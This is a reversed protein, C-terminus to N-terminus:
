HTADEGVVRQLFDPQLLLDRDVYRCPVRPAVAPHEIVVIPPALGNPKDSKSHGSPPLRLGLFRGQQGRRARIPEIQDGM